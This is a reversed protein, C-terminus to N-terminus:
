DQSTAVLAQPVIRLLIKLLSLHKKKKSHILKDSIFAMRLCAQHIPDLWSPVIINQDFFLMVVLFFRIHFSFRFSPPKARKFHLWSAVWSFFNYSDWFRVKQGGTKRIFTDLVDALFILYKDCEKGLIVWPEKLVFIEQSTDLSDIM